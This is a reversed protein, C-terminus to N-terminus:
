KRELLSFDIDQKSGTFFGCCDHLSKPEIDLINLNNFGTISTGGAAKMVFALPNCEYLLRLKSKGNKDTPYAFVGGDILTRHFDAVLSGVYRQSYGHHLADFMWLINQAEWSTYNCTNISLWKGKNPCKINDRHIFFNNGKIFYELVKEGDSIVMNTSPGYLTYGALTLKNGPQLFDNFSAVEGQIPYFGFISGVTIQYDINSSGDLPDIVAVYKANKNKPFFIPEELEESAVGGVSSCQSLEYILYQNAVDDLKKVSEGYVNKTHSPRHYLSSDRSSEVIKEAARSIARCLDSTVRTTM